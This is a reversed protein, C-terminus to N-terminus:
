GLLARYLKMLKDGYAPDAAWTGTLSRLTPCKGRKVYKFRPDVLTTTLPETNAYAKLHQVHALAGTEIDPFSMGPTHADVTGLGAFNNQRAQVTGGFRLYGTEHLMQVLAAALSINEAECATRYANYMRTWTARGPEPNKAMAFRVFTDQSVPDRGTLVVDDGLRPPNEFPLTACSAFLVLTVSLLSRLRM